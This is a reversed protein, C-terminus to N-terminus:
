VSRSRHDLTSAPNLGPRLQRIKWPSFIRLVGEKPLFTFDNTGRRLNIAHLLDRFTLHFDLMKLCFEDAMERGHLEVKSQQSRKFVNSFLFTWLCRWRQGSPGWLDPVDLPLVILWYPQLVNAVSAWYFSSSPTESLYTCSPEPFPGREGYPGRRPVQPPVGKGPIKLPRDSKIQILFDQENPAGLSIFLFARSVTIERWLLRMKPVQLFPAENVPSKSLRTFSPFPGRERYPGWQLDQLLAQKDPVWPFLYSFSRSFSREEIPARHPLGPPLAGKSPIWSLCTVSPIPFPADTKMSARHPSGPPLAEASLVGLSM